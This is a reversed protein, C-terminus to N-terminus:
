RATFGVRHIVQLGSPDPRLEHTPRSPVHRGAPAPLGRIAGQEVLDRAVTRAELADRPNVPEVEAAHIRGDPQLDVWGSVPVLVAIKRLQADAPDVPVLQYASITCRAGDRGSRTVTRVQFPGRVDRGIAEGQNSILAELEKADRDALGM